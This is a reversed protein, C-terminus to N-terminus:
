TENIKPFIINLHAMFKFVKIRNKKIKYFVTELMEGVQDM